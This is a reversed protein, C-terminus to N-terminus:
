DPAEVLMRLRALRADWEAARADLYTRLDTLREPRIEWRRDRGARSSALLGARELVKLHKTLGQRSVPVGEGLSVTALPGRASLREVIM